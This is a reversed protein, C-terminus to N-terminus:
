QEIATATILVPYHRVNLRQALEDGSVPALTLGPALARLAALAQPTEVQVVLGIADLARLQNLRRRLWDRSRADDGILFVPLLGPARLVRHEVLGPTLRTSHVPLLDAETFPRKREPQARPLVTAARPTLGLAQYYPQASAGGLDEVVILPPSAAPLMSPTTLALLGPLAPAVTRLHTRKM